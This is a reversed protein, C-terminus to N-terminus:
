RPDKSLTPPEDSGTRTETQIPKWATQNAPASPNIGFDWVYLNMDKGTLMEVVAYEGPALDQNPTLKFWSGSVPQLSSPVFSEDQSVKGYIAIKLNGVLRSNKKPQLRIIQFRQAPPPADAKKDSTAKDPASPAPQDQVSLYIVPRPNHGQVTAHLGPLEITQKASALPNITARLINTGTNRNVDSGNQALEVIQPVGAYNEFLFIGGTDPLRLGPAIEPSKAEMEKREAEVEADIQQATHSVGKKLDDNYKNTATWDVLSNPIDEWEYREASLYHVRNGQLEWKVVSQYSGDKLVLRKTVDQAHSPLSLLLFSGFVVAAQAIRRVSAPLM